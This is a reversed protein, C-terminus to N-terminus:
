GFWVKVNWPLEQVYQCGLMRMGGAKRSHRVAVKVSPVSEPAELPRVMLITGEPFDHNTLIALGGASRNVVIGNLPEADTPAIFRVPIPNLWRRKSGRRDGQKVYSDDEMIGTNLAQLRHRPIEAMLAAFLEESTMSELSAAGDATQYREKLLDLLDEWPLDEDIALLGIGRRWRLVMGATMFALAGACVGALIALWHSRIWHPLEVTWFYHDLDM